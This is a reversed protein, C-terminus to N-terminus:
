AAREVREVLVGRAVDDLLRTLRKARGRLLHFLVLAPIAVALGAATTVLAQGIGDALLAPNGVKEEQAIVLFSQIMGVVTGLLGLLPAVSAIAQLSSLNNQLEDAERQGAEDLAKSLGDVGTDWHLLGAHLMRSVPTREDGVEARASRVDGKALKERVSPWIGKPVIRGRRLAVLREIALGLMLVSALAIPIMLYGGDVALDGLTALVGAEEVPPPVDVGVGGPEVRDQARLMASSLVAGFFMVAFIGIRSM